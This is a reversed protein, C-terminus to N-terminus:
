ADESTALLQLPELGLEDPICAPLCTAEIMPAMKGNLMEVMPRHKRPGQIAKTLAASAAMCQSHQLAMESQVPEGSALHTIILISFIDM